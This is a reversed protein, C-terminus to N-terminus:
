HWIRLMWSPPDLVASASLLNGLFNIFINVLPNKPDSIVFKVDYKLFNLHRIWYPPRRLTVKWLTGIDAIKSKSFRVDSEYDADLFGRPLYKWWYEQFIVNRHEDHQIRWGPNQFDLKSNTALSGLLKSEGFKLNNDQISEEFIIKKSFLVINKM